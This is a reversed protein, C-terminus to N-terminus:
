NLGQTGQPSGKFQSLIHRISCLVCSLINLVSVVLMSMLALLWSVEVDGKSEEGEKLYMGTCVCVCVHLISANVQFSCMNPTTIM